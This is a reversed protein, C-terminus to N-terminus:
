RPSTRGGTPSSSPSLSRLHGTCTPLITQGTSTVDARASRVSIEECISAATTSSPVPVTTAAVRAPAGAVSRRAGVPPATKSAAVEMDPAMPLTLTVERLVPNERM